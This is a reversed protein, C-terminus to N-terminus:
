TFVRAQEESRRQFILPGLQSGRLKWDTLRRVNCWFRYRGMKIKYLDLTNVNLVGHIIRGNGMNTTEIINCDRRKLINCFGLIKNHLPAFLACNLSNTPAMCIQIYSLYSQNQSRRFALCSLKGGGEIYIECTSTKFTTFLYM